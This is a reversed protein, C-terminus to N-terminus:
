KELTFSKRYKISLKQLFDSIELEKRKNEINNHVMLSNLADNHDKEDNLSSKKM